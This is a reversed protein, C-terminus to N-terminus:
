ARTRQQMTVEFIQEALEDAHVRTLRNAAMRLACETHPSMKSRMLVADENEFQFYVPQFRVSIRIAAQRARIESVAIEEVVPRVPVMMQLIDKHLAANANRLDFNEISLRARSRESAALAAITRQHRGNTVAPTWAWITRAARQAARVLRQVLRTMAIDAPQPPLRDATM